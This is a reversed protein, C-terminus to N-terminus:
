ANSALVHYFHVVGDADAAGVQTGCVDCRVPLMAEADADGDDAAGGGASGDDDGDAKRKRGAGGGGGSAAGAARPVRMPASADVATNVTFM